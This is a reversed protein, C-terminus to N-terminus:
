PVILSFLLGPSPESNITVIGFLGPSPFPYSSNQKQLPKSPGQKKM